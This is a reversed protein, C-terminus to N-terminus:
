GIQGSVFDRTLSLRPRTFIEETTGHEIIEGDLMFIARDSIRKSQALNHTVIIITYGKKLVLILKEIQQTAAPDLSSCPEDMLIVEPQNALTRALCLRQQQGGSLREARDQLRDEVENWLGVERLYSRAYDLPTSGDLLGHYRAGFLVDELISMPFPVPRQHILGIRKRVAAPPAARDYLDRGHFLVTGALLRAQPTLELTRNLVRLLTSKGCGSPGVIATIEGKPFSCTVNRLVVREGYAVSVGHLSLVIPASAEQAQRTAAIVAPSDTKRWDLAASTASASNLEQRMTM